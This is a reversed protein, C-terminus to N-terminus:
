LRFLKELLGKKEPQEFACVDCERRIKRKRLIIFWWKIEPLEYEELMMGDEPCNM